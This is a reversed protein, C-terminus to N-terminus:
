DKLAFVLVVVGGILLWSTPIGAVTAVQQINAQGEEYLDGFPGYAQMRLKQLEYPQKYKAETVTQIFGGGIM